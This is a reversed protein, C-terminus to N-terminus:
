WADNGVEEAENDEDDSSDCFAWGGKQKQKAFVEATWSTNLKREPNAAKVASAGREIVVMGSAIAKSMLEDINTTQREEPKPRIAMEAFSVTRVQPAAPRKSWNGGLAPFEEKMPELVPAKKQTTQTTQTTQTKPSEEDDGDDDSEDMLLQFRSVNNTNANTNTITNTTPQKSNSTRTMTNHNSSQFRQQKEREANDKALKPCYKVTHGPNRCYRCDQELLTLCIVNGDRDKPWHSNYDAESKGADKCVKCHPKRPANIIPTTTNRHSM